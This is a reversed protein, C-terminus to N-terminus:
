EPLIKVGAVNGWVRLVSRYHKDLIEVTKKVIIQTKLSGVLYSKRHSSIINLRDLVAFTVAAAECTALISGSRHKWRRKDIGMMCKTGNSVKATDRGHNFRDLKSAELMPM